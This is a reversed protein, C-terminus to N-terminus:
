GNVTAAQRRWARAMLVLGLVIMPLLLAMGMTLWGGAL